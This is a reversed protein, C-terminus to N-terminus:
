GRCEAPAYKSILTPAFLAGAPVAFAPLTRGAAFCFWVVPGLPPTGAAILAGESTPTLGIVNTGAAAVKATYAVGIYGIANDTSVSIVNPSAVANTCTAGGACPPVGIGIRMGAGLGGAALPTANAANDSVIVKTESALSLGETVRSRIVYDQYAPLALAALIGIIAVVIMLEILTFGRQVRAIQHKM